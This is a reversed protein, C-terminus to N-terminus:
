DDDDDDDDDDWEDDDDDAPLPLRRGMETEELEQPLIQQATKKKFFVMSLFLYVQSKIRMVCQPFWREAAECTPM